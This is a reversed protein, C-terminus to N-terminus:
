HGLVTDERAPGVAELFAKFSAESGQTFSLDESEPLPDYSFLAHDQLATMIRYNMYSFPFMLILDKEPIQRSIKLFKCTNIDINEM